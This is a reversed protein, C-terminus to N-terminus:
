DIIDGGTSCTPEPIACMRTVLNGDPTGLALRESQLQQCQMILEKYHEVTRKSSRVYRSENEDLEKELKDLLEEAAPIARVLGREKMRLYNERSNRVVLIFPPTEDSRRKRPHRPLRDFAPAVRQYYAGVLEVLAEYHPKNKRSRSKVYEVLDAAASRLSDYKQRGAVMDLFDTAFRLDAAFVRLLKPLHRYIAGKGPDMGQFQGSFAMLFSQLLEDSREIQDPLPALKKTLRKLDDVSIGYGEFISSPQLSGAAATIFLFGNLPEYRCRDRFLEAFRKRAESGEPCQRDFKMRASTKPALARDISPDSKPRRRPQKM